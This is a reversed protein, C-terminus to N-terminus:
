SPRNRRKKSKKVKQEAKMSAKNFEDIDKANEQVTSGPKTNMSYETHTAWGKEVTQIDRIRADQEEKAAPRSLVREICTEPTENIFVSVVNWDVEKLKETAAVVGVPDLILVPKKDGFDKEFANLGVGYFNGKIEVNELFFGDEKRKSFEEKTLFHYDIGDVEGPRPERTTTTVLKEYGLNDVMDTLVTSKGSASLGAIIVVNNM